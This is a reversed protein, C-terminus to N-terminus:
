GSGASREASMPEGADVAERAVDSWWEQLVYCACVWASGLAISGLTDTPYHSGVSVRSFAMLLPWMGTVVFLIARQWRRRCVPLWVLLVAGAIVTAALTHGSPFSDTHRAHTLDPRVRHFLSKFFLSLGSTGLMTAAFFLLARRRYRYAALLLLPIWYILRKGGLGSVAHLLPSDWEGSRLHLIHVLKTDLFDVRPLYTLVGILGFLAFLAASLRWRGLRTKASEEVDTPGFLRASLWVGALALAVIAAGGVMVEDDM